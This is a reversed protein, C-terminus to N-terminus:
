GERSSNKGEPAAAESRLEVSSVKAGLAQGLARVAVQLVEDMTTARQIKQGLSSILAEREAKQQTKSYTMANQLAIAVQNATLQILDVDAQTLGNEVNQQVDLVGLVRDGSSIPVALESKTEPLLPNPLWGPDQTTNGVLVPMNTTAARGVLGRGAPIHHGRALMVQGAEGTGGAMILDQRTENFLYIHVHYYNFAHQVENVVERTLPEMDLITSLRRSVETSLTMAQTRDQIRQELNTISDRLQATMSNFAQALQGVEDDREVRAVQSFDGATVAMVTENLHVMPQLSRRILLLSFVVLLIAGVGVVAFSIIRFQIVPLFAVDYSEQTIIGWGNEMQSLFALWRRGNKDTYEFIGRQGQRLAVVPPENAFSTLGGAVVNPDPLAITPDPHAIVRDKHDVVYTIVAGQSQAAGTSLVEKSIQNLDSVLSVAGVIKGNSDRVPSTMNLSSKGSSRTVIVEFTVPAGTMAGIFWARDHLDQNKQGDSRIVNMGALNTTHFTYGFNKSTKELVPKQRAADMSVIDDFEAMQHLLNVNMSFWTETKLFLANNVLRLQENTHQRLSAESLFILLWMSLAIIPISILLMLWVLRTQLRMNRVSFREGKQIPLPKRRNDMNIREAPKTEM